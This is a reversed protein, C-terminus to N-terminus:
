PRVELKYIAFSTHVAEGAELWRQAAAKGNGNCRGIWDLMVETLTSAEGHGKARPRYRCVTHIEGNQQSDEKHRGIIYRDGGAIKDHQAESM